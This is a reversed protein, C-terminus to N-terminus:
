AEAGLLDRLAVEDLHRALRVRLVEAPTPEDLWVEVEGPLLREYRACIYLVPGVGPVDVFVRVYGDDFPEADDGM